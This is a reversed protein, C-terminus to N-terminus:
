PNYQKALQVLSNITSINSSPVTTLSEELFASFSNKPDVYIICQCSDSDSLLNMEQLQQQDEEKEWLINEYEKLLM